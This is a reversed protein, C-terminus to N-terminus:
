EYRLAELPDVKAARRAPIYSAMAAICMLLLSVILFTAPDTVSVGYLLNSMLRTLALSAALGIVVGLLTLMLGQRVVMRLVEGQRAGLAMRIGIEHTRQTVSYSIVGYIGVAALVMALGAFLGLLRAYFRPRSVSDGIMQEATKISDIPQDRDIAWVESKLAAAMDKADSDTRAVVTMFSWPNQSYPVYIEEQSESELARHKVDKIVGIIRRTDPKGYTIKLGKGVAEEGPFFRRALTENIIVVPQSENTDQETFDRGLLLPIGMTIFYNPSVAHYQALLTEAPSAPRGEVMFRFSMSTGSLPLNTTAAVAKVGPLSGVRASLQEFFAAKQHPQGYKSQPLAVRMAVLGRPNFGPEVSVLRMFSRVLLGAGALLVLALAVESVVLINRTRGRGVGEGSSRGGEKLSNNLDTKSFQIAPILGFLLGTLASLLLTFGFVQANIGVEGSRPIIDPFGAVVLRIGWLALMLGAIGGAFALLVSETLFQRILRRRGCGLAARIAVEKQRTTARALLLNAVNACAILLVFSIAGFFILLAARVEGIVQEQLPVVTVTYGRNEEYKRELDRAIPELAAQAQAPTVQRKLRAVASVYRAGRMSLQEGDFSLPTWMEAKASNKAGAPELWRPFDFGPPMVGVVEYPKDDLRITKGLLGPDSGFRRRWLEYSVIVVQDRGPRADDAVFARGRAPSVGLLPLLNVTVQSGSIREAEDMGMLTFSTSAFAAADEFVQSQDRWDALNAPSVMDQRVGKELNTEWVMVLRDPDKFPLPRILVANVVCFVATNAGIGLALTLVVVSNFGPKKIFMRIAYRLDLLLNEM